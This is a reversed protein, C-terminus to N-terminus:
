KANFKDSVFRGRWVGTRGGPNGMKVSHSFGPVWSDAM